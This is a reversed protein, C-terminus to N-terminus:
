SPLSEGYLIYWNNEAAKRLKEESQLAATTERLRRILTEKDLRPALVRLDDRDKERSSFLKSLFVDYADVLYVQLRGFPALSHLRQEWGAPLYHSQFHALQLGYRNRLGALQGHLTRVEAPVEDVVDIDETKRSILGPLILAVSGGVNLRVTRTLLSGLERLFQAVEEPDTKEVIREMLSPFGPREFSERGIAELEHRAPCTSLWAALREEGWHQRLAELSDRILLRTRYDLPQQEVQYLIAEALESPDVEPRGQVLSWLDITRVAM